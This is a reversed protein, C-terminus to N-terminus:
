IEAVVPSMTRVMERAKKKMGKNEDLSFKVKIGKAKKVELLKEWLDRNKAEVGSPTTWNNSLYTRITGRTACDYIYTCSSHIEVTAGKARENLAELASIIGDLAMRNNTTESACGIFEKEHEGLVLKSIYAGNKNQTNASGEVKLIINAPNKAAPKRNVTTMNNRRENERLQKIDNRVNMLIKGLNNQGLGTRKDVGWYTDGWLNGEILEQDGTALLKDALDKHQIFKAYVIESMIREKVDEWDRRLKVKRGYRRSELPSFVSMMTQIYPSESKQAQFASEASSFVLGNYNVTCEFFNSLFHNQGHFDNIAM